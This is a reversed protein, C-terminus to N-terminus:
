NDAGSFRRAIKLVAILVLSVASSIVLEFPWLNHSTPDRATDVLIRCIVFAAVIAPIMAAIRWGRRWKWISWAPAAIGAISLALMTLMFGSFLAQDTASVPKSARKVVQQRRVKEENKLLADVWAARPRSQRSQAPRNTGVIKVPYSAVKRGYGNDSALIQIEDVEGPKIFSFWGLAEGKGQHAVSANTYADVKKGKFYPRAWLSVPKDSDFAIRVFFQESKGLLIQDGAPDTAVVTAKVGAQANGPPLIVWLFAFTLLLVSPYVRDHSM